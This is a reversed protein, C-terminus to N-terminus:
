QYLAKVTGWTTPETAIAGPELGSFWVVYDYEDDAGPPPAFTASGVFFWIVAGPAYGMLTMEGDECSGARFNELVPGSSCSPSVEFFWTAHEADGTIEVAGGPGMTIHYWDTDRCGGGACAYWGAVGCLVLNGTADGVLEQFPFGPATNCGGNWSDIYFDTLPPEGEAFGGAPCALTCPVFYQVDLLYTGYAEGYGDIVIHYTDGGVLPVRSIASVYVGCDNNYYADDNCAVLTMDADYVYVKTDYGSGCLDIALAEDVAPTYAYVVDPATSDAYPCVADYDNTFGATTGSDSFPVSPIVLATAITDGGQRTPDPVNPPFATAPKAPMVSGTDLATASNTAIFIFVIAAWTRM